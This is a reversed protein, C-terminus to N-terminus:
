LNPLKGCVANNAFDDFANAYLSDAPYIQLETNGNLSRRLCFHQFVFCNSSLFLQLKLVSALIISLNPPLEEKSERRVNQINIHRNERRGVVETAYKDTQLCLPLIKYQEKKMAFKGLDM